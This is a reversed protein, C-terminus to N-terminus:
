ISVSPTILPTFFAGLFAGLLLGLFVGLFDGLGFPSLVPFRPLRLVVCTSMLVWVDGAKTWLDLYFLLVKDELEGKVGGDEQSEQTEKFLVFGKKLKVHYSKRETESVLQYINININTTISALDM